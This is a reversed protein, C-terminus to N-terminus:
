LRGWKESEKFRKGAGGGLTRGQGGVFKRGDGVKELHALRGSRGIESPGGGM